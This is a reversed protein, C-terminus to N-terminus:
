KGMPTMPLDAFKKWESWDPDEFAELTIPLRDRGRLLQNLWSAFLESDSAYFHWERCDAFTLVLALRSSESAHLESVWAEFGEMKSFLAELEHGEFHWRVCVRQTLPGHSSLVPMECLWRVFIRGGSQRRAESVRWLSSEESM